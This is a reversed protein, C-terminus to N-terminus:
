NKVPLLALFVDEKMQTHHNGKFTQFYFTTSNRELDNKFARKFKISNLVRYKPESM